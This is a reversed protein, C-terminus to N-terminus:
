SFHHRSFRSTLRPGLVKWGVGSNSRPRTPWLSRSSAPASCGPWCNKHAFKGGVSFFVSVASSSQAHRWGLQSSETTHLRLCIIFYWYICIYIDGYTQCGPDPAKTSAEGTWLPVSRRKPPEIKWWKQHNIKSPNGITKACRKIGNYSTKLVNEMTKGNIIKQQNKLANKSPVKSWKQM